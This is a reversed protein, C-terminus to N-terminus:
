RWQLACLEVGTAISPETALQRRRPVTSMTPVFETSVSMSTNVSGLLETPAATSSHCCIQPVFSASKMNIMVKTPTSHLLQALRVEAVRIPRSSGESQGGGQRMCKGNVM